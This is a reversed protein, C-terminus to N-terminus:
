ELKELLASHLHWHSTHSDENFTSLKTTILQYNHFTTLNLPRISNFTLQKTILKVFHTQSTFFQFQMM